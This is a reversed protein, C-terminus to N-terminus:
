LHSNITQDYKVLAHFSVKEGNLEPHQKYFLVTLRKQFDIIADFATEGFGIASHKQDIFNYNFAVFFRGNGVLKFDLARAFGAADENTIDHTKKMHDICSQNAGRAAAEILCTWLSTRHNSAVPWYQVVFDSEELDQRRSITAEPKYILEGNTHLYFFGTKINSM